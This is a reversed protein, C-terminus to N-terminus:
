WMYTVSLPLHDSDAIEKIIEPNNSIAVQESNILHYDLRWGRETNRQFVGYWTYRESGRSEPYHSDWVDQLECEAILTEFSQRERETFGAKNGLTRPNHVDHDLRAVNLDGCILTTNVTSKVGKIYKRFDNDWQSIRYDLRKLPFKPNVGSNPIYCNVISIRRAVCTLQMIRGENPHGPLVVNMVNFDANISKHVLAGTGHWSSSVDVAPNWYAVYDPHIEAPITSISSKIEQLLLIHPSHNNLLELLSGSRIRSKVGNVNWTIIKLSTPTHRDTNPTPATM